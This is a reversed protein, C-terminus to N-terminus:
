TVCATVHLGFLRLGGFDAVALVGLFKRMTLGVVNVLRSRRIKRPAGSFAPELNSARLAGFIVRGRFCADWSIWPFLPAAGSTCNTLRWTSRHTGPRDSSVELQELFRLLLSKVKPLRKSIRRRRKKPSWDIHAFPCPSRTDDPQLSKQHQLAKRYITM